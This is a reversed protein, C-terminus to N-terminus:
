GTLASQHFSILVTHESSEVDIRRLYAQIALTVIWALQALIQISDDSCLTALIEGGIQVLLNIKLSHVNKM